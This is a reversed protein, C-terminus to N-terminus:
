SDGCRVRHQSAPPNPTSAANLTSLAPACDVAAGAEFLAKAM